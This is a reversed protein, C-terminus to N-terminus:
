QKLHLYALNKWDVQAVAGQGAKATMDISYNTANGGTTVNGTKGAIDTDLVAYAQSSALAVFALVATFTSLKQKFKKM